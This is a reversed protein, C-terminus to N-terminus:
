SVLKTKPKKNQTTCSADKKIMNTINNWQSHNKLSNYFQFLAIRKQTKTQLKQYKIRIKIMNRDQPEYQHFLIKKKKFECVTCVRLHLDVM